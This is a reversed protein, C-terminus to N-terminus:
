GAIIGWSMAKAITEPRSRAKLKARAAEFYSRATTERIGLRAAIERDSLGNAILQLCERERVTTGAPPTPFGTSPALTRVRQHFAISVLSLFAKTEEDFVGHRAVLSVLGFRPGGRPLPIVIGDTWGHQVTRDLSERTLGLLRKDSRMDSWTFPAHYFGLAEVVPDHEHMRESQYFKQWDLPWAIAFFVAISTDTLDIEGAALTDIGLPGLAELFTAVCTEVSTAKRLLADFKALSQTM